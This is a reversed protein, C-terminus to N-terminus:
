NYKKNYVYYVLWNQYLLTGHAHWKNVPKNNIDSYYNLPCKVDLNQKLDRKYEKDLTYKDYEPHGTLFVRNGDKSEIILAGALNSKSTLILDKTKLVEEEIISCYRSVPIYFLDDFGKVLNTKNVIYHEYLGSAKTILNYRNVNYFYQLGFESAWCLFLTSKVHNKTYKLFEKLEEIYFIDAYNLHELPAGTVIFGDYNEKKIKNFSVYYKEYYEEKLTNKTELYIFDLEVQMFQNDLMRILDKETDELNPMLNLIGIKVYPKSTDISRLIEINDKLEQEIKLKKKLIIAM